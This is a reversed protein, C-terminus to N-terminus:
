WLICDDVRNMPSGAPCNFERAFDENNSLPGIVRFRSPSHPDTLIQEELREPTEVGCWLNAYSLFFIQDSTFQELGPLMPEAGNAAVYFNYARYAERLGGNDAINEGQTTVGNVHSGSAVTFNNYQDIFCQARELYNALTEPTWWNATNGFKDSQRGQDDFGHTIEHGIVSGIGGYNMNALRGLGYFPPQLIGAPFTISNLQPEYFANVISPYTNWRTRDTPGRLTLFDKKNLFANADQVNQFHTTTTAALGDYYAELAAKDKIWDPYGVFESMYDAKERAIAKTGEDMWTADDVLTKFATKLNAIMLTTETKAAEDFAREVYKAGTAFGVLNNAQNACTTSRAEPQSTGYLVSSFAFALDIMQQTTYGGLDKVFRWHIYNAITRTPTADLLAVLKKLYETETVIVREDSPVTIGALSYISSLYEQWNIKGNNTTTPVSDTWAQVESVLLPNYLRTINRRDEAPTTIKALESEFTWVALVDADIQADTAGTALYDRIAKAADTIYTSYATMIEPSGSPNILTSRPLALSSQDIYITSQNTNESDLYNFVSLFYYKGYLQRGAVTAAKWDFSTEDWTSQTMPWNGFLALLDTLPKLGITEITATDSCATFMDRATNVPIADNPNNEERLIVKLIETLEDRLIDFQTWRSKSDPIPHKEIWGGCAYQFFDQCPDATLDMSEILNAAAVVCETTTCIARGDATILPANGEKTIRAQDKLVRQLTQPQIVYADNMGLLAIFGIVALTAVPLENRVQILHHFSSWHGPACSHQVEM